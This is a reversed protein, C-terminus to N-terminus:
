KSYEYIYISSFINRELLNSFKIAGTYNLHSLDGYCNDELPLNSFDLFDIESFSDNYLKYFKDMNYGESALLEKRKPTCILIIKIGKKDSFSIIKKLYITENSSIEVLKKKKTENINLRLLAEDLKNRDLHLYGGPLYLQKNLINRALNNNLRSINTGLNSLFHFPTQNFVFKMDSYEMIGFYYKMRENM